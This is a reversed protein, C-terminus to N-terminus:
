IASDTFRRSAPSEDPPLGSWSVGCLVYADNKLFRGELQQPAGPIGTRVISVVFEGPLEHTAQRKLRFEVDHFGLRCRLKPFVCKYFAEKASFAVLAGLGEKFSLSSDSRLDERLRERESRSLIYEIMDEPLDQLEEADIGLNLSGPAVAAAALTRSRGTHTISGAFGQPFLPVGDSDRLIPALTGGALSLAQRAHHRGCRYERRRKEAWSYFGQPVEDTTLASLREVEHSETLGASTVVRLREDFLNRLDESVM